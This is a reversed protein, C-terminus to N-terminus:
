PGLNEEARKKQTPCVNRDALLRETFPVGKKTGGMKDNQRGREKWRPVFHLILKNEQYRRHIRWPPNM